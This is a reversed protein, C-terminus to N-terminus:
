SLAVGSQGTLGTCDAPTAIMSRAFLAPGFPDGTAIHFNCAPILDQICRRREKGLQTIDARVRLRQRIPKLTPM